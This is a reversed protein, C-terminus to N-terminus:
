DRALLKDGGRSILDQALQEGLERANEMTGMMEGDVRQTGAQDLVVGRLSLKGDDTVLAYGGVPALCGARLQRLLAREATVAANTEPDNVTALAAITGEDDSRSELGLAGQGIAPLMVSRSIVQTVRDVFGLRTLGAKALILADYDGADLKKLRTDVNGRIDAVKLDSRHNLLQAQRRFSGTGILANAPLEAISEAMNCVLVDSPDERKPVAALALDDLEETPLDKLSHVAFDIERDLLAQQIRKTFAGQGGFETLSQTSQDGETSIFVIECEVGAASLESKIFEAQWRALQSSRSGLKLM